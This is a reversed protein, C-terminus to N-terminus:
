FSRSGRHLLWLPYSQYKESKFNSRYSHSCQLSGEAGLFTLSIEFHPVLDDNVERHVDLGKELLKWLLDHDAADPFRGAMGVIAIKSDAKKGTARSVASQRLRWTTHDEMSVQFNGSHRLASVVKSALNTPGITHVKCNTDVPALSGSTVENLLKDWRVPNILISQLCKELLELPTSANIQRGDASSHVILHIKSRGFIDRSQPVLIKEIDAVSYLHPAHYAGWVPIEVQHAKQFYKKTEFLRKRVSPPGSIAVHTASVVSVWVRNSAPIGKYFNFVHYLCFKIQM